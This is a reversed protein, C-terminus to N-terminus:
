VKFGVVRPGAFPTWNVVPRSAIASDLSETCFAVKWSLQQIPVPLGHVGVASQNKQPPQRQGQRPPRHRRPVRLLRSLRRLGRTPCRREGGRFDPYLTGPEAPEVREIVIRHEWNDGMDYVYDFATVGSDVIRALTASSARYVKYGWGADDPDPVGYTRDGPPSSGCTIIWGAWPPRSIAAQIIRHLTQLITATPVAVRRWILPEIDILEICLVAVQDASM